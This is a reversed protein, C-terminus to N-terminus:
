NPRTVIQGVALETLHSRQDFNEAGYKSLNQGVELEAL